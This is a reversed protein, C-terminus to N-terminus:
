KLILKYLNAPADENSLNTLIVIGSGDPWPYFFSNMFPGSYITTTNQSDYEVISVRGKKTFILHKSDPHWVFKGDASEKVPYNKDERIDYVYYNKEKINREEPTPNTGFLRPKIIIPLTASTSAEYLIKEEDPSFQLDNFNQMVIKQLDEKQSNIIKKLKEQKQILKEQQINVLRTTIDEPINNFDKTQLAYARKNPSHILLANGDSLFELKSNHLGSIYENAIQTPSGGFNLIFRSTMDLVYVGNKQASASSVTYAILSGTPDVTPNDAGTTTLSELKPALPVLLADAKSVIEKEIKIKKQWPLYGDKLIKVEYEGPKLNITSNTATELNNNIFVKAGNPQSTAVLLGTTALTTKGDQRTIRYGRGYLIATITGIALFCTLLVSTIVFRKM